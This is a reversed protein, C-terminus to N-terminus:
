EALAGIDPLHAPGPRPTADAANEDEGCGACGVSREDGDHRTTADAGGDAAVPRLAAEALRKAPDREPGVALVHHHCVAGDGLSGELVEDRPHSLRGPLSIFSPGVLVSFGYWGPQHSCRTSKAYRRNREGARPPRHRYRGVQESYAMTAISSCPASPPDHIAM